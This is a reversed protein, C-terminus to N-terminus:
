EELYCDYWWVVHPYAPNDDYGKLSTSKARVYMEDVVFITPAQDIITEQADVYKQEAEDRDIGSLRRGEEVMNDVTQNSYYAMNFFPEDETLYLSGFWSYPSAVDPWWYMVLLDQRNTPNSSKAKDWQQTWPMSRIQMDIGFDSLSAQLLTLFAEEQSNGQTFTAELDINEPNYESEEFLQEAKDLDEEYQMLDQSHSWMGYPIPGRGQRANGHYVEDVIDQYPVAYSVAKRFKIDDFPKKETNFFGIMNQFSPTEKLEVNDKKKAEQLQEYPLREVVHVNGGELEQRATTAEPINRIVVQDFKNKNSDWGQWYDDFKKLVLKEGQTYSDITYPGSGADKHENFWEHLDDVEDAKDKSFIFSGYSSASILDIPAPEKLNFKVTYEDVIEINDVPNWIFSAGEGREMTREISFKVDEATMETGDHFKVGERLEFTWSLGDSSKSWDKALVGEIEDDIPHYRLLTEYVNHMTTIENSFSDSPDWYVVIDTRTAQIGITTTKESKETCGSMALFSATLVFVLIVTCLKQRKM